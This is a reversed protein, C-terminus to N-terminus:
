RCSRRCASATAAPPPPPPPFNGPAPGGAGAAPFFFGGGPHVGRGWGLWYRSVWGVGGALYVVGRRMRIYTIDSAWVENPAKIRLGRLLYPYVKHSTDPISTRPKPYIAMLGMGRLLRRVRDRGVTHGQDQLSLRMREVGYFPTRTYQEDLLRMLELDYPDPGVAVYYLSSRPLGLLRCQRSVSLRPHGPEVLARREETPM